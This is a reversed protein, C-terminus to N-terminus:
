VGFRLKVEVRGGIERLVKIGWFGLIFYSGCVRLNLFWGDELDFVVVRSM